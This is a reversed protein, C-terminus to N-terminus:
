HSFVDHPHAPIATFRQVQPSRHPHLFAHRQPLPQLQEAAFYSSPRRLRAQTFGPRAEV